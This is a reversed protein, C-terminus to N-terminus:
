GGETADPDTEEPVTETPFVWDYDTPDFPNEPVEEVPRYQDNYWAVLLDTVKGEKEGIKELYTGYATQLQEKTEEKGAAAFRNMADVDHRLEDSVGEWVEYWDTKSVEYITNSCYLFANLYGSYRFLISESHECALYAAFNAEEQRAFSMLCATERSMSFPLTAAYQEPNVAAEGTLGVTLGDIGMSTFLGSWGLEKVPTRPGAFVSYRWVLNDYSKSVARNMEELSPAVIDGAEDRQVWNSMREAQDRYYEAAERLEALSYSRVELKMSEAVPKNHYNLGWLGCLLFGAVTLPVLVAGLWRLLNGRFLIVLTLSVLVIVAYVALAVQWLCFDLKGTFGGLIEMATKSFFPYAMDMLVDFRAAIQYLIVTLLCIVASVILGRLNKM